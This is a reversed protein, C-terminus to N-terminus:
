RLERSALPFADAIVYARARAPVRTGAPIRLRVEALDGDPAAISTTEKRYDVGVPAGTAADTLLISTLHRRAAYPGRGAVAFRATV